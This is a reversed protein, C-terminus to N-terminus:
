APRPGLDDPPADPGEAAALRGPALGEEPRAACSPPRGEEVAGTRRLLDECLLRVAEEAAELAPAEVGVTLLAGGPRVSVVFDEVLVQLGGPGEMGEARALAGTLLSMVGERQLPDLQFLEPPSQVDATVTHRVREDQGVGGAEAMAPATAPP